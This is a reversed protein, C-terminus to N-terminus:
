GSELRADVNVEPVSALAKSVPCDRKATEAAERFGADDIGPVRGVTALDIRKIAFGDGEKLIQVKAETRISEPVSGGEGLVLSLYMSFCSAHAAAILEEPNSGSGEEFRSQASYSGGVSGSTGSFTGAGSPVDGKWEATATRIAM